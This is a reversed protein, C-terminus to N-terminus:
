SPMRAQQRKAILDNMYSVIGSRHAEVAWFSPEWRLYIVTGEARITAMRPHQTWNAMEGFVAGSKLHAVLRANREVVAVGGQIVLGMWQDSSGEVILTDGDQATQFSAQRLWTEKDQSPISHFIPSAEMAESAKTLLELKHMIEPTTQHLALNDLSAIISSRVLHIQVQTDLGCPAHLVSSPHKSESIEAYLLQAQGSALWRYNRLDPTTPLIQSGAPHWTWRWPYDKLEPNHHLLASQERWAQMELGSPEISKEMTGGHLLSHEVVYYLFSLIIWIGFALGCINCLLQIVLMQAQPFRETQEAVFGFSFATLLIWTILSCTSAVIQWSPTPKGPRRNWAGFLFQEQVQLRAEVGILSNYLQTSPGSGFPSSAIVLYAWCGLFVGIGYGNFYWTAAAAVFCLAVLSALWILARLPFTGLDWAVRNVTWLGYKVELLRSDPPLTGRLIQAEIWPLVQLTILLSIPILFLHRAASIINQSGVPHQSVLFLVACLLLFAISMMLFIGPRVGSQGRRSQQKLHKLQLIIGLHVSQKRSRPDNPHSEHHPIDAKALVMWPGKGEIRVASADTGHLWQLMFVELLSTVM